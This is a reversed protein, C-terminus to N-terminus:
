RIFYVSGKTLGGFNEPLAPRVTFDELYGIGSGSMKFTSMYGNTQAMHFWTGTPAAGAQTWGHSDSIPTGENVRIQYMKHTYDSEVTLRVWDSTSISPANSLVLWENTLAVANKHWIVLQCNTTVYCAFQDNTDSTASDTVPVPITLFDVFVSKNSESHVENKLYDTVYLVQTHTTTIPFSRGTTSTQYQLVGALLAAGNTMVNALPNFEAAWSNSGNISSSAPYSEFSDEFPIVNYTGSFDNFSVQIDSKVYNGVYSANLGTFATNQFTFTVNNVNSVIGHNLAAGLLKVSLQTASDRKIEATLGSPLNAVSIKNDAVFDNENAGSFTDGSLTITIPNRNDIMGASLESFTAGSYTLTRPDTYQIILNSRTYNAVVAANGGVVANDTLTIVLNSISNILAHVDANGTFTLTATSASTGRRIQVELGAPKNAVTIKDNLVMDETEDANFTKNVLTLTTGNVSGNNAVTETFTTSGYTLTSPDIFSISLNTSVNLVSSLPTSGLTFAGAQFQLQLTTVNQAVAHATANGLLRVQLETASAVLVQGTLGAPLNTITLKQSNTAFNEGINGTFTANALTIVLPTTNDIAGNNANSEAFALLSYGLSPTNTFSIQNTQQYGTVDWGRGLTFANDTYQVVLNSLSNVSEHALARNTLTLAVTTPNVLTAVATLNSPLGTVVVKGNGVFNEGPTGTFTDLTLSNTLPQSNDIAGNNTVSETFNSRSWTLTRKATMLDELYAPAAEAVLSGLTGNTQVMHFWSGGQVGAYTWGLGDVLPTAENVRIQFMQNSYDHLVTFRTWENTGIVPSNTLALWENTAPDQTRNQHWITLLGNTAIYFACQDNTQGVPASDSWSPLVMFDVYVVGGTASQAANAVQANLQLINTHTQTPGSLPFSKGSVPYNTLLSVRVVDNTVLGADSSQATWGNTGVVSMGNTYPEFSDSWPVLNTVAGNSSGTLCSAALMM